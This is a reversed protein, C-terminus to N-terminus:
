SSHACMTVAAPVPVLPKSVTKPMQLHCALKSYIHCATMVTHRARCYGKVPWGCSHRDLSMEAVIM